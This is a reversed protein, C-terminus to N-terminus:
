AFQPAHAPLKQANKGLRHRAALPSLDQHRLTRDKSIRRVTRPGKRVHAESHAASGAVRARQLVGGHVDLAHASSLLALFAVFFAFVYNGM